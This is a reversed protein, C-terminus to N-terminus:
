VGYNQCFGRGLAKVPHKRAKEGEASICPHILLQRLPCNRVFHMQLAFSAFADQFLFEFCSSPLFSLPKLRLADTHADWHRVHGHLHSFPDDRFRLSREGRLGDLALRLAGSIASHSTPPKQKKEEAAVTTKLLSQPDSIRHHRM